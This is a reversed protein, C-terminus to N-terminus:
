AVRIAIYVITIPYGYTITITTGGAAQGARPDYVYVDNHTFALYKWTGGAPLTFSNGSVEGTVVGAGTLVPSNQFLCRGDGTVQLHYTTGDQGIGALEATGGNKKGFLQIFSGDAYSTGGLLVLASNARDRSMCPFTTFVLNGAM